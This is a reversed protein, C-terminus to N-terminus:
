FKKISKFNKKGHADKALLLLDTFGVFGCLKKQEEFEDGIAEYITALPTQTPAYSALFNDFSDNVSSLFREWVEFLYGASYAPADALRVRNLYKDYCASFLTKLERPPKLVTNEDLSKLWRYSVSHFTGAWIEGVVQKSFHKELRLLMEASAKNTFTLLLIKNPAVGISLLHAIRAVITSTKGTGASAIILNRGFHARAAKSQEENLNSFPM